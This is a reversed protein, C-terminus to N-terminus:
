LASISPKCKACLDGYPYIGVTQLIFWAEQDQEKLGKNAPLHWDLLHGMLYILISCKVTHLQVSGRPPDSGLLFYGLLNSFSCPLHQVFERRFGRQLVSLDFTPVVRGEGRVLKNRIIKCVFWLPFFGVSPPVKFFSREKWFCCNLYILLGPRILILWKWYLSVM